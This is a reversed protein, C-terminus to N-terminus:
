RPRHRQERIFEYSGFFPGIGGLVAVAVALRLPVIRLRAALICALSMGIWILGHALGLVFTLPEPNGLAFACVLLALYVCSHTFSAWKLRAFTLARTVVSPPISRSPASV